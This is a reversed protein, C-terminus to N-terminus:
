IAHIEEEKHQVFLHRKYTEAYKSFSSKRVTFKNLLEVFWLPYAGMAKVEMLVGLEPAVLQGGSGKKLDLCTDRFRIKQDFTVRFEVEEDTFLSIRDYSILVQPTLDPHQKFLWFIEENIQNSDVNNRLYFDKSKLWCEYTSYDVSLRRKYVIGNVKKKIELFITSEESPIGYSRVRFKEKYIPKDMSHQIFQFDKTDYYLSMITHLGYEDIAMKKELQEFFLPFQQETLLYKNEKRQFVKKLKM